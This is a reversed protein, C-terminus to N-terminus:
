NSLRSNRFTPAGPAMEPSPTTFGIGINEAEALRRDVALEFEMRADDGVSTGDLFQQHRGSMASSKAM